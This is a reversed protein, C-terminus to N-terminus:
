FQVVINEKNNKIMATLTSCGDAANAALQPDFKSVPSLMFTTTKQLSINENNVKITQLNDFGHLILAISKFKSESQGTAKELILKNEAANYTITRNYFFGKENDFSKGDDEYYVYSNPV